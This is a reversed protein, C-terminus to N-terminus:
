GLLPGAFNTYSELSPAELVSCVLPLKSKKQIEYSAPGSSPKSVDQNSGTLGDSPFWPTGILHGEPRASVKAYLERARVVGPIDRLAGIRYLKHPCPALLPAGITEGRSGLPEVFNAWLVCASEIDWLVRFEACGRRVELFPRSNSEWANRAVMPSPLFAIKRFVEALM